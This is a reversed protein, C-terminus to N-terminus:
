RISPDRAAAVHPQEGMRGMRSRRGRIRVLLAVAVPNGVCTAQLLISLEDVKWMAGNMVEFAAADGRIYPFGPLTEVFAATPRDYYTQLLWQSGDYCPHARDLIIRKMHSDSLADFSMLRTQRALPVDGDVPLGWFAAKFLGTTERTTMLRMLWSVAGEVDDALHVGKDFLRVALGHSDIIPGSGGSFLVKGAIARYAHCREITAELKAVAGASPGGGLLTPQPDQQKYDKSVGELATRLARVDDDFM